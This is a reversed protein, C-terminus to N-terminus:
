VMTINWPQNHNYDWGRNMNLLEGLFWPKTTSSIYCMNAYQSWYSRPIPNNKEHNKMTENGNKPYRWNKPWAWTENSTLSCKCSLMCFKGWLCHASPARFQGKVGPFRWWQCPVFSKFGTDTGDIEDISSRYRNFGWIYIFIYTYWMQFVVYKM